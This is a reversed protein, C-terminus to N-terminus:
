KANRKEWIKEILQQYRSTRTTWETEMIQLYTKANSDGPEYHDGVLFYLGNTIAISPQIQVRTFNKKENVHFDKLVVAELKPENILDNWFATPVIKDYLIASEAVSTSFHFDSNFGMAKLPTHRLITLIGLANDRVTEFMAQNKTAIKLRERTVEYSIFAVTFVSVDKHSVQLDAESAESESVLGNKVLWYPHFISPNFDGLIVISHGCLELKEFLM